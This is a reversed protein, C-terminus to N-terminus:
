EQAAVSSANLEPKREPKQEPKREPKREPKARTFLVGVVFSFVCSRDVVNSVVISRAFVVRMWLVVRWVLFSCVVVGYEFRMFM